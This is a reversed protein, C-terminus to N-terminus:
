RNEAAPYRSRSLFVANGSLAKDVVNQFGVSGVLRYSDLVARDDLLRIMRTFATGPFLGSWDSSTIPDGPKGKGSDLAM